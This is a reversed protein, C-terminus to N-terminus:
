LRLSSGLTYRESLFQPISPYNLIWVTNSLWAWSNFVESCSSHLTRFVCLKKVPQVFIDLLNIDSVEKCMALMLNTSIKRNVLLKCPLRYIVPVYEAVSFSAHSLKQLLQSSPYFTLHIFFGPSVSFIFFKAFNVHIRFWGGLTLFLFYNYKVFQKM